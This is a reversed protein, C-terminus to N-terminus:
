AQLSLLCESLRSLATALEQKSTAYSIRITRPAGFSEGPVLAVKFQRLLYMCLEHSDKVPQGDPTRRGFYASVDPLVYFAGEPTSCQVGPIARLQGMVLDRKERMEAISPAM